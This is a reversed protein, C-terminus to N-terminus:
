AEKTTDNKKKASFVDEWNLKGTLQMLVFLTLVSFTAGIFGSTGKFFFSFSFIILYILQAIPAIVFAFTKPTFLRLYSSTLLLSVVSAIAFATYINMHDSYYSFVLHFSFFATALFFYHMPHFPIKKLISIMMVIFFFFLLPVPAFFTVRSLIEGPNLKNPIVVGIDKGTVANKLRWSLLNKAQTKEKSTPSLTDALFDYDDFDTEVQLDLNRIESVEDYEPTVLYSVEGMGTTRFSMELTVRKGPADIEIPTNKLFPTIQQRRKGNIKIEIDKYVANSNGLSAYLRVKEQQMEAPIDFWYTGHFTAKFTPFWLTGKKRRDLHLGIRVQQKGVDIDTKQEAYQTTQVGNQVVVSPVMEVHAMSPASIKLADGYLSRVDEHLEAYSEGTRSLNVAGLIMWAVFTCIFIFIIAVLRKVTM